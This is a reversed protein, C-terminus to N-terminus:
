SFNHAGFLYHDALDDIKPPPYPPPYGGGPHDVATKVVFHGPDIHRQAPVNIGNRTYFLIGMDRLLATMKNPGRGLMKAATQLNVNGRANSVADYFKAKPAMKETQAQLKEVEAAKKDYEGLLYRVTEVSALEPAEPQRNRQSQEMKNFAAIYEEKFQAATSGTFGMVLFTFGDRTMEVMPYPRRNGPVTFSSLQFNLKRFEASCDLAEISQLVNKHQKGFKAAVKMSTTVAENKANLTVLDKVEITSENMTNGKLKPNTTNTYRKM